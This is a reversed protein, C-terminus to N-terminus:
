YYERRGGRSSGGSLSGAPVVVVPTGVERRSTSVYSGRPSQPYVVEREGRRVSRESVYSRRPSAAVYSEREPYYSERVERVPAKVVRTAPYEEETRASILCM